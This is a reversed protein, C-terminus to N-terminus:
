NDYGAILEANIEITYNEQLANLVTQLHFQRKQLLLESELAESAAHFAAPDFATRDTVEYILAGAPVPIVGVDGIAVADDFLAARIEPTSGGTGPLDVPGAALDGSDQVEQELSRAARNLDRGSGLAQEAATVSAKQLRDNLVASEVRTRVDALPAIAPPLEADVTFVAMGRAVAMPASVGGVPLEFMERRFEPTPALDAMRDTATATLETLELGAQEVAEAFGEASGGGALNAAKERILDQATDLAIRTRIQERAEDLPRVGPERIGTVRIVHYGFDTQVVDTLEGVPTGFVAEEFAPVMAGRSFFGLDGGNAASIPISPCNRPWTPM